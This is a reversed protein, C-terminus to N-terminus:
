TASPNTASPSNPAIPAYVADIAARTTVTPPSANIGAMLTTAAQWLAKVFGSVAAYLATAGTSDITRVTNSADVFSMTGTLLGSNYDSVLGLLDAKDNASATLTVAIPQAGSTLAISAPLTSSEALGRRILAYIQLAQPFSQFAVKQAQTLNTYTQWTPDYATPVTPGTYLRGALAPM